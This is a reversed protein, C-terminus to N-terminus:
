GLWCFDDPAALWQDRSAFLYGLFQTLSLSPWKGAMVTFVTRSRFRVNQSAPDIDALHWFRVYAEIVGSHIAQPAM